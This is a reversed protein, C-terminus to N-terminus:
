KSLESDFITKFTTYPQNGSVSIGNIFFTPTGIVGIKKGEDFESNVRGLSKDNNICTGYKDIDLGLSVGYAILNGKSYYELDSEAAQHTYFWDHLEWFKGQDLACESAEAAWISEQGLPVFHKFVFKVKGTNVYDRRIESGTTKFYQGCYPCRFDAYEVMTVKANPNGLVKGGESSFTVPTPSPLGIQLFFIEKTPSALPSSITPEAIVLSSVPTPSVPAAITPIPSPQNVSPVVFEPPNYNSATKQTKEQILKNVVGFVSLAILVVSVAGAM